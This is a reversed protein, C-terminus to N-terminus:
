IEIMPQVKIMNGKHERKKFRLMLFVLIFTTTTCNQHGGINGIPVDVVACVNKRPVALFAMKLLGFFFGEVLTLCYFLIWKMTFSKNFIGNDYMRMLRPRYDM